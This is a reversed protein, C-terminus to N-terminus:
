SEEVTDDRLADTLANAQRQDLAGLLVDVSQGQRWTIGAAELVDRHAIGVRDAPLDHESLLARLYSRQSPSLRASTSTMAM